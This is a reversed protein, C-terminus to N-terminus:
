EEESETSEVDLDVDTMMALYEIKAEAQAVKALANELKIQDQISGKKRTILEM